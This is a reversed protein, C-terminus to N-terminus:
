VPSAKGRRLSHMIRHLWALLRRFRRDLPAAWSLRGLQQELEQIRMQGAKLEQDLGLAWLSREEVEREAQELRAGTERGWVSWEQVQRDLSQAWETREALERDLQSAWATRSELEEQLRLAWATREEFLRHLERQRDYQERLKEERSQLRQCAIELERQPPHPWAGWEYPNATQIRSDGARKPDRICFEPALPHFRRRAAPNRSMVALMHTPKIRGAIMEEEDRRHVADIFARDWASGADYNEGFARDTFPDIINAFGIFLQFHFSEVLLPLIDQARIGEFGEGSCDWDQYLEEYRDLTHNFRYSPPLKRWYEQVIELAEPWRRHGNRGIMDSALFLGDTKLCSRVAAFLGELNLVHHLSQNAIVADYESQPQWHNFDAEVFNLHGALDAAAERGRELMARNLELCDITFAACGSQRLARALGIELDCNGAGLSAYQRVNTGDGAQDLLFKRFMDDPSRFGFAELKPRVYRNSWYHFIEPLRHVDLYERYNNEEAALRAAYDASPDM